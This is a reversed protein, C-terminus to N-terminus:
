RLLVIKSTKTFDGAKLRLLYVGSSVGKGSDDKRDWNVIHSGAATEGDVLTRIL